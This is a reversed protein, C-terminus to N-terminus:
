FSRFFLRARVKLNSNVVYRVHMGNNSCAHVMNEFVGLAGAVAAISCNAVEEVNDLRIQQDNMKWLM